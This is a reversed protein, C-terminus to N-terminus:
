KEFANKFASLAWQAGACRVFFTAAERCDGWGLVFLGILLQNIHHMKKM